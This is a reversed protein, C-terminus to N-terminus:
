NIQLPQKTFVHYNGITVDKVQCVYWGQRVYKEAITQAQNAQFISDPVVIMGRMFQEKQFRQEIIRELQAREM